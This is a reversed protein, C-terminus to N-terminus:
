EWLLTVSYRPAGALAETVPLDATFGGAGIRAAHGAATFGTAGADLHRTQNTRNVLMLMRGAQTKVAYAVIATEAERISPTTAVVTGRGHANLLAFLRGQPRLAFDNGIKGYIGDMENWATTVTAGATLAAAVTLSDFVAGKYSVMRPDRTEWTWSINYEDLLIPLPRGAETAVMEKVSETARLIAQIRPGFIQADPDTAAGSAYAHYSFFDLQSKAGRVFKRLGDLLDPRIAAPGGTRITPDVAKMAVAAACYAAVLEDVRSPKGEQVLHNHYQDDWENTIEWWRVGAKIEVNVIRVLEACLSAWATRQDADLFGDHDADMWPPFTNITILVDAGNRPFVAFVAAIKDRKWTHTAHDLWSSPGSGSMGEATHFRVFGPAMETLDAQYRADGAIQEDWGRFINLGYAGQGAAGIPSNWDVKVVVTPTPGPDEPEPADAATWLATDVLPSEGEGGRIVLAGGAAVTSPFRGLCTWTWVTPRGWAWPQEAVTGDATTTKLQLPGGRHRVWLAVAAGAEVGPRTLRILPEWARESRTAAGGSALPDDIRQGAGSSEAEILIEAAGLCTCGLLLVSMLAAYHM